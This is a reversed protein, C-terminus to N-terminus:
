SVFFTSIITMKLGGLMSLERTIRFNENDRWLEWCGGGLVERVNEGKWGFQGGEWGQM